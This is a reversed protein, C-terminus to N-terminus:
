LPHPAPAEGPTIAFTECFNRWMDEYLFLAWYHELDQWAVVNPEANRNDGYPAGFLKWLVSDLILAAAKQQETARINSLHTTVWTIVKPAIARPAVVWMAVNKAVRKEMTSKAGQRRVWQEGRVVPVVLKFAVLEGSRALEYTAHMAKRPVDFEYEANGMYDYRWLKSVLTMAEKTFGSGGGGFGFVTDVKQHFEANETAPRRLRQIVYPSLGLSREITAPM